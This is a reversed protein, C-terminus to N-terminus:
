EKNELACLREVSAPLLKILTLIEVPKVKNNYEVLLYFLDTSIAVPLPSTPRPTLTRIGIPDLIKEVNGLGASPGV